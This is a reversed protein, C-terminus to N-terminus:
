LIVSKPIWIIKRAVLMKIAKETTTIIKGTFTKKLNNKEAFWTKVAFKNEEKSKITEELVLFKKSIWVHKCVSIEKRLRNYYKVAIKYSKVTEDLVPCNELRQLFSYNSFVCKTMQLFAPNEEDVLYRVNKIILSIM